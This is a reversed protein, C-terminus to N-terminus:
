FVNFFVEPGSFWTSSFPTIVKKETYFFCSFLTNQWRTGGGGGGGISPWWVCPSCSLSRKYCQFNHTITYLTCYLKCNVDYLTCNANVTHVLFNVFQLVVYVTYLTCHVTYLTCHVTYLTCHVTYLTSQVTYLATCHTMDDHCPPSSQLLLVQCGITCKVTYM